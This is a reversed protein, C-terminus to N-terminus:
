SPPLPPPLLPQRHGDPRLFAAGIAAGVTAFIVGALLQFMFGLVFRVPGASRDAVLDFFARVDPPLDTANQVMTGVMREQLPALLADLVISAFLWVFAGAIGALLGVGAARGTTVPQSDTQQLVYASLAGGGLIWLCCCNALNVIPLASLVGIFLGGFLAPQLKPPTPM